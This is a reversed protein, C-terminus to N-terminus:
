RRVRPSSRRGAARSGPQRYGTSSFFPMSSTSSCISHCGPTTRPSLACSRSSDSNALSIADEGYRGASPHTTATMMASFAARREDDTGAENFLIELVGLAEGRVRKLVDDILVPRAHFTAADYSSTVGRITPELTHRCVSTIIPRWAQLQAAPLGGVVRMLEAQVGCGVQRWAEINHEALREVTALISRQEADGAGEWIRCLARVTGEVDLYRYTTLIEVGADSVDRPERGPLTGFGTEISKTATTRAALIADPIVRLLEGHIAPVDDHLPLVQQSLRELIDCRANNDPAKELQEIPGREFIAKGQQLREADQQVKQIEYGAPVLYKTMIRAMRRKIAALEQGGFGAPLFNKYVIDHATESWAHNLLTQIQLEARMGSFRAYEPLALREPKM